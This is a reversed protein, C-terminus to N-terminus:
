AAGVNQEYNAWNEIEKVQTPTAREAALVAVAPDVAAQLERLNRYEEISLPPISYRRFPVLQM